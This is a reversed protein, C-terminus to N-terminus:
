SRPLAPSALARVLLPALSRRIRELGRLLPRERPLRRGIRDLDGVLDELRPQRERHEVVGPAAMEADIEVVVAGIEAVHHRRHARDAADFGSAHNGIAREASSITSAGGGVVAHDAVRVRLVHDDTISTSMAAASSTECGRVRRRREADRGVLAHVQAAPAVRGIRHEDGLGGASTASAPSPRPRPSRARLQPCRCRRRRAGRGRSTSRSSTASRTRRARSRAAVVRAPQGDGAAQRVM